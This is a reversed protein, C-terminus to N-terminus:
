SRASSLRRSNNWRLVWLGDVSLRNRLTVREKVLVLDTGECIGTSEHRRRSWTEAARRADLRAGPGASIVRQRLKGKLGQVEAGVTRRLDGEIAAILRTM